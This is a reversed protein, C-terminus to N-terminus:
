SQQVARQLADATRSFFQKVTDTQQLLPQDASISTALQRLQSVDGAEIRASEFVDVASTFVDRVTGAHAGSKPDQQLREASQKFRDFRSRTETDGPRQEVFAGLAASLRRIGEATYDHDRGVAPQAPENAFAAYEQIATPVATTAAAGGATGVAGDREMAAQDVVPEDDDGLASIAIWGVVLLLALGLLWPWVSSPDKKEINIEAM